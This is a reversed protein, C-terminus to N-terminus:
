SYPLPAKPLSEAKVQKNNIFIYINQISNFQTEEPWDKYKSCIQGSQRLPRRKGNCIWEM